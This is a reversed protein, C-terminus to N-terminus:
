DATLQLRSLWCLINFSPYPASPIIVCFKDWEFDLANLLRRSDQVLIQIHIITHYSIKFRASKSVLVWIQLQLHGFILFVLKWVLWDHFLAQARLCLERFIQRLIDLSICFGNLEIHALWNRSHNGCFHMIQFGQKAKEEDIVSNIVHFIMSFLSFIVSM